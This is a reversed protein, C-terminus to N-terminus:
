GNELTSPKLTIESVASVEMNTPLQVVGDTIAKPIDNDAHRNIASFIRHRVANVNNLDAQRLAQFPGVTLQWGGLTLM